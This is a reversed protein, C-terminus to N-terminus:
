RETVSMLMANLIGVFAVLLALGILWRTQIRDNSIESATTPVGHARMRALLQEGALKQSAPLDTAWLRMSSIIADTSLISMLFALALVIGSTVLLSRALRLRISKYAIEVAKSLPLVIQRQVGAPQHSSATM